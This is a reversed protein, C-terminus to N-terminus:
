VPRILESVAAMRACRRAMRDRSRVLINVKALRSLDLEITKGMRQM